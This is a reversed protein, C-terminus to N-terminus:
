TMFLQLTDALLDVDFLKRLLCQFLPISVKTNQQHNDPISLPSSSVAQMKCINLEQQIVYDQLAMTTHLCQLATPYIRLAPLKCAYAAAQQQQWKTHMALTQQQLEQLKDEVETDDESKTHCAAHKYYLLKYKTIQQPSVHRRTGVASRCRQSVGCLILARLCSAQKSYALAKLM